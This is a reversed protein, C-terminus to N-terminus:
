AAEVPQASRSAMKVTVLSIVTTLLSFIVIEVLHGVLHGGLALVEGDPGRGYHTGLSLQADLTTAIMVLLIGWFCYVFNAPLLQKFGGLGERAFRLGLFIPLVFLLRTLSIESAVKESVGAVELVFHLLVFITVAVLYPKALRVSNGM